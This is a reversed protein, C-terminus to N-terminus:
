PDVAAVQPDRRGEAAAGPPESGVRVVRGPTGVAPGDEVRAAGFVSATQALDRWVPARRALYQPALVRAPLDHVRAVGVIAVPYGKPIRAAVQKQHRSPSPGRTYEKRGGAVGPGVVAREVEELPARGATRRDPPDAHVGSRPRDRARPLATGD